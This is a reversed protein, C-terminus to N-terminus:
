LYELRKRLRDNHYSGKRDIRSLLQSGQRRRLETVEAEGVRWCLMESRLEPIKDEKQPIKISNRKKREQILSNPIKEKM